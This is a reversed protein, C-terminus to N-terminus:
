RNYAACILMEMLEPYDIGVSGVSKPLLSTATLGPLTNVELITPGKEGVIFDIRAYDRCELVRFARESLTALAATAADGVPAPCLYETKGKTYKSEYDYFGGLPRIEVAPYAKGCVVPVSIEAGVIWEEVLVCEDYHLAQACTELFKARAEAPALGTADFPYVGVTSGQRAAKIFYRHAGSSEFLTKALAEAGERGLIEYSAPTPLGFNVLAKKTLGKHFCLASSLVGSGVYPIGVAELFGQMTGDEGFTGHMGIFVVDPKHSWDLNLLEGPKVDFGSVEFNKKKLAEIVNAATKVSVERESSTGGFLVWVNKPRKQNM